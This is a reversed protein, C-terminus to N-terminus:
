PNHARMGPGEGVPLLSSLGEGWGEGRPPSPKQSGEGALPLPSQPSPRRSLKVANPQLGRRTEIKFVYFRLQAFINKHKYM